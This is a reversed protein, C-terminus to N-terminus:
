NRHVPGKILIMNLLNKGSPTATAIRAYLRLERSVNRIMLSTNFILINVCLIEKVIKHLMGSLVISPSDGRANIDCDGHVFCDSFGIYSYNRSEM